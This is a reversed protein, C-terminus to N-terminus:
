ETDRVNFFFHNTWVAYCELLQFQIVVIANGYFSICKLVNLLEFGFIM